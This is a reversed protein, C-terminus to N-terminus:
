DENYNMKKIQQVVKFLVESFSRQIFFFFQLCFNSIVFLLNATIKISTHKDANCYIVAARQNSALNILGETGRASYLDYFQYNLLM